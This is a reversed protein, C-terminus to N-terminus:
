PTFWMSIVQDKNPSAQSGTKGPAEETRSHKQGLSVYLVVCANNGEGREKGNEKWKRGTETRKGEDNRNREQRKEVEKTGMGEGKMGSGAGDHRKRGKEQEKGARKKNGREQGKGAGKMVKSGKEQRGSELRKGARKRSM